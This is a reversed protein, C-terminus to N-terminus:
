NRQFDPTVFFLRIAQKLKWEDVKGDMFDLIRKRTRSELPRQLYLDELFRIVRLPTSLKYKKKLAATDVYTENTNGKSWWETLAIGFNDRAM